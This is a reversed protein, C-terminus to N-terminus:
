GIRPRPRDVARWGAGKGLGELDAGREGSTRCVEFVLALMRSPDFADSQEADRARHVQKPNPSTVLGIRGAGEQPQEVEWRRSIRRNRQLFIRDDGNRSFSGA